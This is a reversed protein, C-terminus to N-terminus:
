NYPRQGVVKTSTKLSATTHSSSCSSSSSAATCCECSHLDAALVELSFSSTKPSVNESSQETIWVRIVLVDQGVLLHSEIVLWGIPLTGDGQNTWVSTPLHLQSLSQQSALWVPKRSGRLTLAAEDASARLGSVVQGRSEQQLCWGCGGHRRASRGPSCRQTGASSQPRAPLPHTNLSPRSLASM